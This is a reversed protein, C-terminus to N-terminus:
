LIYIDFHVIRVHYLYFLIYEHRINVVVYLVGQECVIVCLVRLEYMCNALFLCIRACVIHVLFFLSVGKIDGLM